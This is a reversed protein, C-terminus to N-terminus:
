LVPFFPREKSSTNPSGNMGTLFRRVAQAGETRIDRRMHSLHNAREMGVQFPGDLRSNTANRSVGFAPLREHAFEVAHPLIANAAKSNDVCDVALRPYNAEDGDAMALRDILIECGLKACLALRDVWYDVRLACREGGLWALADSAKSAPRRALM